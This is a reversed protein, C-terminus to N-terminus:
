DGDEGVAQVVTPVGVGLVASLGDFIDDDVVQDGVDVVGIARDGFAGAAGDFAEGHAAPACCVEREFVGVAEGGDGEDAGQEVGVVAEGLESSDEVVGFGGVVGFVGDGPRM